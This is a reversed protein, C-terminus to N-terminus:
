WNGNRSIKLEVGAKLEFPQHMESWFAIFAGGWGLEWSPPPSIFKIVSHKKETNVTSNRKGSCSRPHLTGGKVLPTFERERVLNKKEYHSQSKGIDTDTLCLAVAFSRSSKSSRETQGISIQSSIEAPLLAQAHMWLKDIEPTRDSNMLARLASGGHIEMQPAPNNAVTACTSAPNPCFLLRSCSPTRNSTHTPPSPSAHITLRNHGM